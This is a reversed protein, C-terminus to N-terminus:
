RECGVFSLSFLTGPEKSYLVGGATNWIVCNIPGNWQVFDDLGDHIVTKSHNIIQVLQMPKPGKLSTPHYKVTPDTGTPNINLILGINCQNESPPGFSFPLNSHPTFESNIWFLYSQNLSGSLGVMLHDGLPSFDLSVANYPMEFYYLLQGCSSEPESAYIAIVPNESVSSFDTIISYNNFAQSHQRKRSFINNTRLEISHIRTFSDQPVFVAITRGCHSLRVSSETLGTGSLTLCPVILHSETFTHRPFIKQSTTSGLPELHWKRVSYSDVKSQNLSPGFLLGSQNLNNAMFTNVLDGLRSPESVYFQLFKLTLHLHTLRKQRDNELHNLNTVLSPSYLDSLSFPLESIDELHHNSHMGSSTSIICHEQPSIDDHYNNPQHQEFSSNDPTM